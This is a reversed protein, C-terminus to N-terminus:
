GLSGGTGDDGLDDSPGAFALARTRPAQPRQGETAARIVLKEDEAGERGDTLVREGANATRELLKPLPKFSEAHM